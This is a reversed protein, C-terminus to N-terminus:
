VAMHHGNSGKRAVSFKSVHALSSCCKMFNDGTAIQDKVGGKKGSWPELRRLLVATCLM